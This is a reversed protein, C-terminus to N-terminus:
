ILELRQTGRWTKGPALTVPRAVAAAEICVMRQWDDAPMDGLRSAKAPGPNWLVADAFGQQLVRRAPMGGGQLLLDAPVDRYVRDVEGPFALAAQLDTKLAHGQLADEYAVGQLGSVSASGLEQLALYTHLAATFDFPAHGPNAVQLQLELWGSGVRVVLVLCFAQEWAHPLMSSDLQFHAEAVEGGNAPAAVAEWRSIRAFGHKPLPGRDSFQPFCVPVGGRVSKGASPLSSPSRYLQEAGGAPRWSLVQAGHLSVLVTDGRATHLIVSDGRAPQMPHTGREAVACCM